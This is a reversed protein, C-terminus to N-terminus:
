RTGSIGRPARPFNRATTRFKQVPCCAQCALVILSHYHPNKLVGFRQWQFGALPGQAGPQEGLFEAPASMLHEPPGARERVVKLLEDEFAVGPEL